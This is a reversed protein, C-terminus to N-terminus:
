VMELPGGKIAPCMGAGRAGLRTVGGILKSPIEGAFGAYLAISRGGTGLTKPKGGYPCYLYHVTTKRLVNGIKTGIVDKGM